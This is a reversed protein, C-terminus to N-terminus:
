RSRRKDKCYLPSFKDFVEAAPLNKLPPGVYTKDYTKPTKIYSRFSTLLEGRNAGLKKYCDSFGRQYGTKASLFSFADALGMVYNAPDAFSWITVHKGTTYSHPKEKRTAPAGTREDKCYLSSLKDFVEVAPLTELPPGDYNWDYAKTREIYGEFTIAM